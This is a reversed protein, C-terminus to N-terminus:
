SQKYSSLLVSLSFCKRAKSHYLLFLLNRTILSQLIDVEWDQVTARLFTLGEKWRGQMELVHAM